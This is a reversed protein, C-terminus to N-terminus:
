SPMSLRSCHTSESITIGLEFNFSTYPPPSDINEDNSFALSTRLPATLPIVSIIVILPNMFTSKASTLVTIDPIPLAMIPDPTEDPSFRAM